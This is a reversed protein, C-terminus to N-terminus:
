YQWRGKWHSRTNGVSNGVRFLMGEEEIELLQTKLSEAHPVVRAKMFIREAIPDVERCAVGRTPM